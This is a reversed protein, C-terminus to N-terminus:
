YALEIYIREFLKSKVRGFSFLLIWVAFTLNCAVFYESASKRANLLVPKLFCEAIHTARLAEVRGDKGRRKLCSFPESVIKLEVRLRADRVVRKHLLVRETARLRTQIQKLRAFRQENIVVIRVRRRRIFANTQVIINTQSGLRIRM